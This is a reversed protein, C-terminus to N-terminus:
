VELGSMAMSSQSQPCLCEFVPQRRRRQSTVFSLQYWVSAGRLLTDDGTKPEGRMFCFCTQKSKSGKIFKHFTWCLTIQTKKLMLTLFSVHIHQKGIEQDSQMITQTLCSGTIVIYSRHLTPGKALETNLYSSLPLQNTSGTSDGESMSRTEVSTKTSLAGANIHSSTASASGSAGGRLLRKM